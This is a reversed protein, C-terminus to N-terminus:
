PIWVPFDVYKSTTEVTGGPLVAKGEVVPATLTDFHIADGLRLDPTIRDPRVYRGQRKTGYVTVNRVFADFADQSERWQDPPTVLRYFGGRPGEVSRRAAVMAKAMEIYESAVPSDRLFENRVEFTFVFTRTGAMTVRLGPRSPAGM